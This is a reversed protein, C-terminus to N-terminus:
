RPARLAVGTFGLRRLSFPGARRRYDFVPADPARVAPAVRIRPADLPHQGGPSRQPSLGAEPIAVCLLVSKFATRRPGIESHRKRRAPLTATTRAPIGPLGSGFGALGPSPRVGAANEQAHGEPSAGTCRFRRIRNQASSSPAHSPPLLCFRLPRARACACSIAAPTLANCCPQVAHLVPSRSRIACPFPVRFAAPDQEGSAGFLLRAPKRVGPLYTALKRARPPCPQV